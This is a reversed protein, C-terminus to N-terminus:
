DCQEEILKDVYDRLNEKWDPITRLKERVGNRVNFCVPTRDFPETNLPSAGLKHKKQFPM